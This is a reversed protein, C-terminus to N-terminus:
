IMEIQSSLIWGERGDSLRVGRWGKLSTDTVDIRTGEHLIFSDEGNQVPTKKVNVSPATIIAGCSNQREKQTWAFLTSVAFLVLFFVGGFFGVKRLSLLSVFLYVLMFMLALVISVISVVAWTDANAMNVISRYWSTFVVESEPTLKDITKSRAFQLNFRIDDDGPSLLSAREYALIAMAISDARYYANGLNYYVDASKGQRLLTKYDAIAQQYNGKKYATDADNKTVAHIASPMLVMLCVLALFAGLCTKRINLCYRTM